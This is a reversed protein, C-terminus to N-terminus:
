RFRQWETSADRVVLVSQTSTAVVRTAVSGVLFNGM